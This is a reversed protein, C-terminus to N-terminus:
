MCSNLIDATQLSVPELLSDVRLLDPSNLLQLLASRLLPFASVLTDDVVCHLLPSLAEMTDSCVASM